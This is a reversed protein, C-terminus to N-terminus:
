MKYPRIKFDVEHYEVHNSMRTVWQPAEQISNSSSRMHWYITLICACTGKYWERQIHVLNSPLDIFRMKM